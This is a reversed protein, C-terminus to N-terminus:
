QFYVAKVMEDILKSKSILCIINYYMLMSYLIVLLKTYRAYKILIDASLHLM